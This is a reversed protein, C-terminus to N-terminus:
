GISLNMSRARSAQARRHATRQPRRARDRARACAKCWRNGNKKIGLNDGAYPHGAPCRDKAANVASASRSKATNAAHTVLRLHAPNVCRRHPCTDGGPCVAPDHCTHDVEMGPALPGVLAAYIIRHVYEAIWKGDRKLNTTFYGHGNGDGEARYPWCADAAGVDARALVRIHPAIAKRPM